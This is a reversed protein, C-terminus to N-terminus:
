ATENKHQQPLGLMSLTKRIDMDFPKRLMPCLLLDIAM